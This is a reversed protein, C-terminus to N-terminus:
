SNNHTRSEHRRRGNRNRGNNNHKHRGNSKPNLEKAKNFGETYAPSNSNKGKGSKGDRFGESFQSQYISDDVYDMKLFLLRKLVVDIHTESSQM